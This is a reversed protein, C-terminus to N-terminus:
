NIFSIVLLAISSGIFSLIIIANIILGILGKKEPQLKNSQLNM